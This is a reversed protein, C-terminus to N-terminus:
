SIITVRKTNATMPALGLPLNFNTLLYRTPEGPSLDDPVFLAAEGAEVWPAVIADITADYQELAAVSLLRTAMETAVSNSPVTQSPYEMTRRSGLNIISTPSSPETNEARGWVLGNEQATGYVIVENFLRSDDASRRFSAMNGNTGTTFEHSVEATLPDVFPRLVLEEHKAFFLEYGYGGALEVMAEWRPTLKEFTIDWSLTRGTTPFNIWSTDIGGNIALTEIVSELVSGAAFTTTGPLRDKLLKKTFDRGAIAFTSASNGREIRDIMFQGLPTVYDIDDMTLGRYPKLIKDYWLNGVGFSIEQNGQDFMCDIIRRESRAFDVSVNGDILPVRGRWLTENDQEYIDVWRVVRAFGALYAERLEDDPELVVVARNVRNPDRVRIPNRIETPTDPIIDPPPGFGTTYGLTYGGYIM